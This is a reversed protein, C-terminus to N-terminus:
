GRLAGSLVNITALAPLAFAVVRLVPVGLAAVRPQRGGLFLEFMPGAQGYILVGMLALVVSAVGWATGAARAALDPRRAGLYQGTLTTAAVSFATVSLFAIAECRIAVGHAATAIAGLRNILGLFWLQCLINTLSEGAAPLSIRLIRWAKRWDPRMGDPSLKLGS